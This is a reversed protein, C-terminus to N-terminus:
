RLRLAGVVLSYILVIELLDAPRQIGIQRKSLGDLAFNVCEEGHAGAHVSVPIGIITVSPSQLIYCRLNVCDGVRISLHDRAYWSLASRFLGIACGSLVVTGM